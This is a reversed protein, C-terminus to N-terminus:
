VYPQNDMLSGILKSYVSIMAEGLDTRHSRAEVDRRICDSLNGHDVRKQVTPLYEKEESTANQSAIRLLRRCTERSTRGRGSNVEARLGDKVISDFDGVLVRHDPLETGPMMLGRSLARIFCSLAVDSKVCEQEDMVRTELARRDFRFIVGRSNVWDKGLIPEEAGALALDSSYRDIIKKRYEGLSSVYEPIVDGTISPIERQNQKYFFLRNDVNEGLRGECIPSSAALAPLYACVYALVNHLLVGRAEDSYSLNLQFSQINLWGHRRMSFVKGFEQYIQRHRHPWVRAEDLRLFPHMGTGLMNAGYKRQLFDEATLVAEQMTQEFDVPSLFPENPRIELVHMQLEKGVAFRPFEVSNVIRGHLDKLIKDVIPL